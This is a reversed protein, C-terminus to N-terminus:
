STAAKEDNERKRELEAEKEMRRCDALRNTHSELTGESKEKYADQKSSAKGHIKAFVLSRAGKDWDSNLMGFVTSDRSSEKIIRHKSLVAEQTFGMRSPLKKAEYDQADTLIQVRRYGLAFLRDMLLFVAEMERETGRANPKVIPPEIDISQM